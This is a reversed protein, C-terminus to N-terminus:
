QIQVRYFKKADQDTSDFFTKLTGNGSIPDGINSWTSLEYSVQVQYTKGTQTQWQLRAAQAIQVDPVLAPPPGPPVVDAWTYGVRLDDVLITSAPGGTDTSAISFALTSISVTSGISGSTGSGSGPFAAPPNVWYELQFFTPSPRVFRAVVLYTQGPVLLAGGGVGGGGANYAGVTMYSANQDPRIAIRGYTTAGSNIRFEISDSGTGLSVPRFLFSFYLTTNQGAIIRSALLVGPVPEPSTSLQLARDGGSLLVGGSIQYSLNPVPDVTQFRSDTGGTWGTDTWGAANTGSGIVGSGLTMGGFSEYAVSQGHATPDLGNLLLAVILALPNFPLKM